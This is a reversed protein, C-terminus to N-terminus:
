NALPSTTHVLLVKKAKESSYKTAAASAICELSGQKREHVYHTSYAPLVQTITVSLTDTHICEKNLVVLVLM